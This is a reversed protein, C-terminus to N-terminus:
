LDKRLSIARGPRVDHQMASFRCERLKRLMAINSAYDFAGSARLASMQKGDDDSRGPLIPNAKNRCLVIM